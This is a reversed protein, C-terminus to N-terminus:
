AAIRRDVAIVASAVEGRELVQEAEAGAVGVGVKEMIRRALDDRSAVAVVAVGPRARDGGAAGIRHVPEVLVARRAGRREVMIRVAVEDGRGLRRIRRVVDVVDLVPQDRGRARLIRVEDVVREPAQELGRDSRDPDGLEEIVVIRQDACIVAGACDGVAVDVVALLADVVREDPVGGGGGAPALGQDGVRLARDDRDGVSVAVRDRDVGIVFISHGFVAVLAPEM